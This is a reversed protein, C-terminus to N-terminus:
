QSYTHYHERAPGLDSDVAWDLRTFPSEGYFLSKSLELTERGHEVRVAHHESGVGSRQGPFSLQPRDTVRWNRGIGRIRALREAASPSEGELFVVPWSERAPRFSRSRPVFSSRTFTGCENPDRDLDGSQGQNERCKGLAKLPALRREGARRNGGRAVVTSHKTRQRVPESPGIWLSERSSEGRRVPLAPQRLSTFAMGGFPWFPVCAGVGM